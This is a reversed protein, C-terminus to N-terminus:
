DKGVKLKMQTAMLFEYTDYTDDDDHAVRFKRLEQVFGPDESNYTCSLSLTRAQDVEVYLLDEVADMEIEYQATEGYLEGVKREFWTEFEAAKSIAHMDYKGTSGFNSAM